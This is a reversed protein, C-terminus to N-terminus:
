NTLNATDVDLTPNQLQKEGIEVLRSIGTSIEDLTANTKEVVASKLNDVAQMQPSGPQLSAQLPANIAGFVSQDAVANRPVATDMGVLEPMATKFAFHNFPDTDVKAAQEKLVEAIADMPNLDVAGAKFDKNLQSIFGSFNVSKGAMANALGVVIRSFFQMFLKLAKGIGQAIAYLFDVTFIQTFLNTLWGALVTMVRIITEVGVVLNSIWMAILVGWLEGLDGVISTFNQVLWQSLISVNQRFNSLFGIALNVFNQVRAALIKFASMFGEAGVLWYTLAGLAGLLAVVAAIWGWVPVTIAGIVGALTAGASIISGMVVLLTGLVVVLPGVVATIKLVNIIMVKTEKDLGKLWQIGKRVSAMVANLSSRMLGFAEILLDIGENKVLQLQAYFDQQRKAVEKTLSSNEKFAQNALKVREGILGAAAGARRFMDKMRSGDQGMKVFAVERAEANMKSLGTIVAEVASLANTRFTKQFESATMGATKAMEELVEGGNASAAAVESLFMSFATGGAEAELGLESLATATGLIEQQTMGMAHGAGTIRIAMAAIESESSNAASGLANLSSGFNDFNEAKLGTLTAFKGLLEAAAEETLNTAMSLKAVTDTFELMDKARIGMQGGIEAIAALQKASVPLELAMKRLGVGLATIEEETGDVTKRVGTFAQEFDAGSKIALANIATLPATLGLTLKKGVSVASHGVSNLSKGFSEVQGALRQVVNRTSATKKEADGLMKFYSSGDGILRVVMRRVEHETM